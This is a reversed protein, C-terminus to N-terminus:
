QMQRRMISSLKAKENSFLKKSIAQTKCKGHKISTCTKCVVDSHNECYESVELNQNCDCIVISPTFATADHKPVQAVPVLKHNRFQKYKKHSDACNRCLLEKCDDCFKVAEVENGEYNCPGCPRTIIKDSAAYLFRVGDVSSM